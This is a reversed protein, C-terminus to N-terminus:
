IIRFPSLYGPGKITAKALFEDNHVLAQISMTKESM